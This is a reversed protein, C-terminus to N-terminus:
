IRLNFMAFYRHSLSTHVRLIRHHRVGEDSLGEEPVQQDQFLLSFWSRFSNQSTEAAVDNM